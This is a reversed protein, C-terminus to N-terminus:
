TAPEAQWTVGGSNILREREKQRIEEADYKATREYILDQRRKRCKRIVDLYKSKPLDSLANVMLTVVDMMALNNAEVEATAEKLWERMERTAIIRAQDSISSRSLNDMRQFLDEENIAGAMYLKKTHEVIAASKEIEENKKIFIKTRKKHGYKGLNFKRTLMSGKTRASGNRKGLHPWVQLVSWSANGSNMFHEIWRKEEETAKLGSHDVKPMEFKKIVRDLRPSEYVEGGYREVSGEPYSEPLNEKKM